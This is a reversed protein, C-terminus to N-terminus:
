KWIQTDISGDEADQMHADKTSDFEDEADQMAIGGWDWGHILITSLSVSFVVELINTHV